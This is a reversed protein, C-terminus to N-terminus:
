RTKWWNHRGQQQNADERTEPAAGMCYQQHQKRLATTEDRPGRSALGEATTATEVAASMEDTVISRINRDDQNYWRRQQQQGGPINNVDMSNIAYATAL